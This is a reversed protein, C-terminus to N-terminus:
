EPQAAKDLLQMVRQKQTDDMNHWTKKVNAPANDPPQIPPPISTLDKEAAINAAEKGKVMTDLYEGAEAVAQAENIEGNALRHGINSLRGQLEVDTFMARVYKLNSVLQASNQSNELNAVTAQLLRNEFDSVAGLAGGTKSADRIDQLKIFGLNAKVTDLTKALDNAGTGRLNELYSGFGTLTWDPFKSSTITALATDTARKVNMAMQIEGVRKTEKMGAAVTQEGALKSGPITEVVQEGTAPDQVLRTGPDLTGQMNAGTAERNAAERLLKARPIDGLREAQAAEDLYQTVKTDNTKSGAIPNDQLSANVINGQQDETFEVRARQGKPIGLELGMPSDGTVLKSYKTQGAIRKKVGLEQEDLALKGESVQMQREDLAAKRQEETMNERNSAVRGSAEFGSGIANGLDGGSLMNIAFQMLGAQVEPAALFSENRKVRDQFEPTNPAAPSESAVQPAPQAVQGLSPPPVPMSSTPNMTQGLAPSGNPEMIKGLPDMLSGLRPSNFAM